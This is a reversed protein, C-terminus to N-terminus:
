LRFFRLFREFAAPYERKARLDARGAGQLRAQLDEPPLHSGVRACQVLKGRANRSNIEHMARSLSFGCWGLWILLAGMRTGKKNPKFTIFPTQVLTFVFLLHGFIKVNHISSLLGLVSLIEIM